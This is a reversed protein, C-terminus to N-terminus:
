NERFVGPQPHRQHVTLACTKKFDLKLLEMFLSCDLIWKWTMAATISIRPVVGAMSFTVQFIIIAAVILRNSLGQFMCGLASLEFGQDNAAVMNGPWLQLALKM